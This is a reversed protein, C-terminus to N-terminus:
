ISLMKTRVVKDHDKDLIYAEGVDLSKIWEPHVRFERVSRSSASGTSKNEVIQATYEVVSRTSFLGAIIEADTADTLEHVVFTNVSGFIQRLFDESGTATFDACSQTALCLSASYSRGMNVLNLVTTPNAFFSFEDLILLWQQKSRVLTSKMDSLVLSALMSAADPYVLAPLDFYAVERNERLHELNLIRRGAWKASQLDLLEGFDSATLSEVESSLSEMAIKENPRRRIIEARFHDYNQRRKAGRKALSLMMNVSLYKGFTHLDPSVGGYQMAKFTTQAHASSIGAFHPESWKRMQMVLEKQETPEKNSFADYACSRAMDSANLAYFGRQYRDAIRELVERVSQDGKGDLYIIPIGHRACESALRLISITKGRGSRGLVVVHRSLQDLTIRVPSGSVINSGLLISSGVYSRAMLRVFHGKVRALPAPMPRRSGVFVQSNPANKTDLQLLIWAGGCIGGIPTTVRWSSLQLSLQIWSELSVTAKDTSLAGRIISIAQQLYVGAVGSKIAVASFAAGTAASAIAILVPRGTLWAMLRVILAVAIPTWSLLGFGGILLALTFCVVAIDHSSTPTNLQNSM